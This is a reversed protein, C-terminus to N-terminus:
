TIVFIVGEFILEKNQFTVPANTGVAGSTYFTCNIATGDSAIIPMVFQRAPRMGVPLTFAQSKSSSASDSWISGKFMVMDGFRKAYANGMNWGTEKTMTTWAAGLKQSTQLYGTGTFAVDTTDSYVLPKLSAGYDDWVEQYGSNRYVAVKGAGDEASLIVKNSGVVATATTITIYSTATGKTAKLGVTANKTSNAIAYLYANADITTVKATAGDVSNAWIGTSFYGAATYNGFLGGLATGGGIVTRFLYGTTELWSNTPVFHIGGDDIQMSPSTGNKIIANTMTVTGDMKVQFPATAIDAFAKGAWIAIGTTSARSVIGAGYEVPPVATTAHYVELRAIGAAGSQLWINGSSNTLRNSSLTWGGITGSSATISGSFTGSGDVTLASGNWSLKETGASDKFKFTGNPLISVRETGGNWLSVGANRLEIGMNSVRLWKTSDTAAPNYVGDTAIMGYENAQSTVGELNGIRIKVKGGTASEWKTFSDVDNVVDMYPGYAEDATLYLLGQRTTNSANGIRIFEMGAKPNTSGTRKTVTFKRLPTTGDLAVVTCDSRYVGLDTGDGVPGTGTWAQARILDGAAFGHDEATTITFNPSTGTVSEVKGTSTVAIAGNTARIRQIILEYVRMTGRVTLNDVEAYSGGSVSGLIFGNGTWGSTAGVSRMNKTVALTVAGGPNMAFDVTPDVTISAGSTIRPTTVYTGADVYTAAEVYASSKVYTTGTIGKVTTQGSANTALIAATNTTVSNSPTVVGLVGTTTPVGVLSLVAKGAWTHDSGTIDHVQAHHQDATVGGLDAHQLQAIAATTAATARLVYGAVGGSITHDGGLGGANALVHIQNHHANANAAHASIDVGDVNGVSNIAFGGMNLIGTMARTGDLLLFGSTDTSGGGTGGGVAVSVGGSSRRIDISKAVTNKAM